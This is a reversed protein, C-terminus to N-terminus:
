SPGIARAVLFDPLCLKEYIIYLYKKINEWKKLNVVIFFSTRGSAFLSVSKLFTWVACDQKM